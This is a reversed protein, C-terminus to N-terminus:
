RAPPSASRGRVVRLLVGAVLFAAATLGLAAWASKEFGAVRSVFVVLAIQVSVAIAIALRNTTSWRALPILLVVGLCALGGVVSGARALGGFAAVWVFLGVVPSVGCRHRLRPELGIAAAGVLAGMAVKPAETDPVCLYVGVAGIALLLPVLRPARRDADVGLVGGVVTMVMAAVRMWGPWVEPISAGLVVGGPALAVARAVMSRDRAFHEGLALLLVAAVLPGPLNRNSRLGAFCAVVVVFWVGPEVEFRRMRLWVVLTGIGAVILATWFAEDSVVNQVDHVPRLM